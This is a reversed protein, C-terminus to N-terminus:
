RGPRALLFSGGREEGRCIRVFPLTESVRRVLEQLSALMWRDAATLDKPPSIRGKGALFTQSFRAVNWLKTVLKGGMQIKEESIISDKGPSTRPRGTACRM